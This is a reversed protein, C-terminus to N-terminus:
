RKRAADILERFKARDGGGQHRGVVTGDRGIVLTEPLAGELDYRTALADLDGDFAAVPLAFDHEVLFARLAEPTKVTQPFVLDLSVAVVRVGDLNQHHLEVLEPM